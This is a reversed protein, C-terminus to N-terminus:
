LIREGDFKRDIYDSTNRNGLIGSHEVSIM